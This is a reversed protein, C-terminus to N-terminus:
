TPGQQSDTAKISQANVDLLGFSNQKSLDLCFLSWSRHYDHLDGRRTPKSRSCCVSVSLFGTFQCVYLGTRNVKMVQADVVGSASAKFDLCFTRKCVASRFLCFVQSNVYM